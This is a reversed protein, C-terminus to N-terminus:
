ELQKHFRNVSLSLIVVGFIALALVLLASAVRPLNGPLAGIAASLGIGAAAALLPQVELYYISWTALHAYILYAALLFVGTMLALIGERPMLTAGLLAFAFLVRGSKQISRMSVFAADSADHAYHVMLGIGM